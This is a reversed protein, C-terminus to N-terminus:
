NITDNKLLIKVTNIPNCKLYNSKQEKISLKLEPYEDNHM